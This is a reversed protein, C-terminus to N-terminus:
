TKGAPQQTQPDISALENCLFQGPLLTDCDISVGSNDILLDGEVDNNGVVPSSSSDTAETRQASSVNLHCLGLTLLWALAPNIVVTAKM